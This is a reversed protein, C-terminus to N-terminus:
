LFKLRFAFFNMDVTRRGLTVGDQLPATDVVFNDVTSCFPAGVFVACVGQTGINWNDALRLRALHIRIVVKHQRPMELVLEDFPFPFDQLSPCLQYERKGLYLDNGLFLHGAPSLM